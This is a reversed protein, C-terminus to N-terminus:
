NTLGYEDDDECDCHDEANCGCDDNDDVEENACSCDEDDECNCNCDTEEEIRENYGYSYKLETKIGRKKRTKAILDELEILYKEKRKMDMLWTTWSLKIKIGFEKLLTQRGRIKAITSYQSFEFDSMIAFLIFLVPVGIIFIALSINEETM